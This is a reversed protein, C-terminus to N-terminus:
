APAGVQLSFPATNAILDGFIDAFEALSHFERVEITAGDGQHLANLTDRVGQIEGVFEPNLPSVTPAPAIGYSVSVVGNFATLHPLQTNRMAGNMEIFSYLLSQLLATYRAQRDVAAYQQSIDNYGIRATELNCVIAYVGSSAPRHFIAQGLNGERGDKDTPKERRDPVYKVHFYEESTTAQPLGVVWGFEVVSKRPASLNGETILNGELDDITCRDILRDIVQVQTPKPTTKVWERFEPDASMRNADFRQCATCLPLGREVAIRHLHEAQIHKFMDGSIANVNALTPQGDQNYYVIDVMRTQIQNGEGGENNLSHLNLLARASVSIAYVQRTM